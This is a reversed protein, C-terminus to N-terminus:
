SQMLIFGSSIVSPTHCVTSAIFISKLRRGQHSYTKKHFVLRYPSKHSTLMFDQEEEMQLADEITLIVSQKNHDPPVDSIILCDSRFDNTTPVSNTVHSAALTTATNIEAPLDSRFSISPFTRPMSFHSPCLIRDVTCTSPPVNTDLPLEQLATPLRLHFSTSTTAPPYLPSQARWIPQSSHLSANNMRGGNPPYSIGAVFSTSPRSHVSYPISLGHSGYGSSQYSTIPTTSYNGSFVSPTAQFQSTSSSSPFNAGALPKGYGIAAKHDASQLQSTTQVATTSVSAHPFLAQNSDLPQEPPPRPSYALALNSQLPFGRSTGANHSPANTFALSGSGLNYNATTCFPTLTPPSHYTNSSSLNKAMFVSSDVPHCHSQAYSSNFPPSCNNSTTHFYSASPTSSLPTTQSLPHHQEKMSEHLHRIILRTGEINHDKKEGVIHCDTIIISNM